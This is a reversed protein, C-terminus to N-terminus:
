NQPVVPQFMGRVHQESVQTRYPSAPGPQKIPVTQLNQIGQKGRELGVATVLSSPASLLFYASLKELFFM